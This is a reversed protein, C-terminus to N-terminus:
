PQTDTASRGAFRGEPAHQARHIGLRQILDHRAPQGFAGGSLGGTVLWDALPWIRAIATSPLVARPARPGSRVALCRNAANSWREPTTSPWVWSSALVFSIVAKAGQQVTDVDGARHDGGVGQVGLVAVGALHVFAARVVYEDDFAVPRCQMGLQGPQGPLVNGGGGTVALLPM